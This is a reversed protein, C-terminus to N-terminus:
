VIPENLDSMVQQFSKRVNLEVGLAELNQYLGVLYIGLVMFDPGLSVKNELCFRFLNSFSEQFNRMAFVVHKQDGPGFQKELVAKLEEIKDRGLGRALGTQILAQNYLNTDGTYFGQYLKWLADRFDDSFKFWANSAHFDLWQGEWRFNRPRLDLCLGQTNKLQSFYLRLVAEGALRRDKKSLSAYNNVVEGAVPLVGRVHLDALADFLSPELKKKGMRMTLPAIKKALSKWEVVEFALSPVHTLVEKLIKPLFSKSPM